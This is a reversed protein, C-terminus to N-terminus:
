QQATAADIPRDMTRSAGFKKGLAARKMAARGAVGFDGPAIPQWRPIHDM